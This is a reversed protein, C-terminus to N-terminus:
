PHCDLEATTTRGIINLGISRGPDQTDDVTCLSLSGAAGLTMLGRSNFSLTDEDNLGGTADLTLGNLAPFVRLVPPNCNNPNGAVVCYGPGWENNSDTADVAQISVLGGLKAAESRAFNVALVFENVRTTLTRQNTFDNFAPIAYGFLIAAIALTVMLEVVTFGSNILKKTM